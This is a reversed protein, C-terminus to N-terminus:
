HDRVVEGVQSANGVSWVSWRSGCSCVTRCELGGRDEHLYERVSRGSDFRRCRSHGWASRVRECEPPPWDMIDKPTWMRVGVEVADGM